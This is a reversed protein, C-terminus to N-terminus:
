KKMQNISSSSSSRRLRFGPTQSMEYKLAAKEAAWLSRLHTTLDLLPDKQAKERGKPDILNSSLSWRNSCDKEMSHSCIPVVFRVSATSISTKRSFSREHARFADEVHRIKWATGERM